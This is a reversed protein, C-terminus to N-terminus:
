RFAAALRDDTRDLLEARDRPPGGAATRGKATPKLSLGKARKVVNKRITDRIINERLGSTVSDHAMTLAEDNTIGRGQAAAGSILADAMELVKTRTDVQPATLATDDVGYVDAFAKKDPSIFFDRVTKALTAMHTATERERTARVEGLVPTIAAIMANVPALMEGIMDPDQGYKEAMARADIPRLSVAEGTAVSAAPTAGPSPAAQAEVRGSRAKRGLEAWTNIEQTRSEHMREFTKLSLDPNARHFDVIEQDTWGRAKATRFYAAPLTSDSSAAEEVSKGEAPTEVKAEEGDPPTEVQEEFPTEAPKAKAVPTNSGEELDGFADLHAQVADVIKPDESSRSAPAEDVASKEVTEVTM